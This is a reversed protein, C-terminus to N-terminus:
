FSTGIHCKRRYVWGGERLDLTNMLVIYGTRSPPKTAFLPSPEAFFAEAGRQERFMLCLHELKISPPNEM